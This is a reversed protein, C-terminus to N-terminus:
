VRMVAVFKIMCAIVRECVQDSGTKYYISIALLPNKMAAPSCQTYLQAVYHNDHDFAAINM